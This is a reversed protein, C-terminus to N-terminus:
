QFFWPKV